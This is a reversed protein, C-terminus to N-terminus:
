PASSCSTDLVAVRFFSQSVDDEGSDGGAAALFAHASEHLVPKASSPLGTARQRVNQKATQIEFLAYIVACM